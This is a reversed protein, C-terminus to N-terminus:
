SAIRTANVGVAGSPGVPQDGEGVQRFSRPGSEGPGGARIAPPRKATRYRSCSADRGRSGRVAGPPLPCQAQESLTVLSRQAGSRCREREERHDEREGREDDHCGTVVARTRGNETSGARLDGQRLELDLRPGDRHRRAAADGHRVVARDPVVQRDLPRLELGFVEVGALRRRQHQLPQLVTRVGHETRDRTVLLCPHLARDGDAAGAGDLVVLRARGARGGLLEEGPVQGVVLALTGHDRRVRPLERLDHRVEHLGALDVGREVVGVRAVPGLERCQAAVREEARRHQLGHDPGVAGLQEV